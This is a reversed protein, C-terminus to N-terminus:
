NKSGAAKETDTGGTQFESLGLRQEVSEEADKLDRSFVM